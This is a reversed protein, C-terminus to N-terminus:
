FKTAKIDAKAKDHDAKAQHECAKKADGSQGECKEKANDKLAGCQAKQAKYDAEIRAKSAKYEDNSLAHAASCALLGAAVASALINTKM